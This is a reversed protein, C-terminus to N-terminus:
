LEITGELIRKDIFKLVFNGESDPVYIPIKNNEIIQEQSENYPNYIPDVDWTPDEVSKEYNTLVDDLQYLIEDCMIEAELEDSVTQTIEYLLKSNILNYVESKNTYELSNIYDVLNYEEVYDENRLFDIYKSSIEGIKM